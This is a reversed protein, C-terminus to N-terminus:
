SLEAAIPAACARRAVWWVAIAGLAALGALVLAIEAPDAALDLTVYSVAIRSMEPGLVLRELVIAVLAAPALVTFAAGALLSRVAGAGAGCARLVAITARREYATLALAQALTYLCVLGDLAAVARLVDGLATVLTDGQGTITETRTVGAQQGGLQAAVRAASAGPKLRVAIQESASPEVALLAGAPVYAVRGDHDLSSVVGAVRLRLEAGAPMMLALTSGVSLGLVQALGEGVEAEREGRLRTGVSLPPDEFEDQRSTPYAIVNVTEDLAFSDFATLEYRPAAAAVGAIRGARRAASAPLSATLQYRRGLAKPDNELTALESALALMLLVFAASVGLTALTAGLRMRRASVLRAGLGALGGRRARQSFRRGGRLEAGKLLAVPSRGAAQWAPWAAALAPLLAAVTLCALLPLALAAGPARENLLALLRDDPSSAVLTGAAVGLAGAPLAVLLAELASALTVHTRSSGIARRVGIAGLRRAVEARASAALMVGATLLAIVSLAGLLALVIGAAQDLLVRVGSRTIFRLNRLGYSQARAQVLVADLEAPDRLWIKVVNVEGEARLAALPIYARPAALPYAVDSPEQALGVVRQPAQGGLEVTDGVRLGWAAALGQELVVGTAGHGLGHGAVIAYGTRGPGLAEVVGDDSHHEAGAIRVSTVEYGLTVAALDPLSRVRREITSAPEAEFRAIVDPLGAARASRSFGTGLGYGVTTATALMAAAMAIGFGALLARGRRARIAVLAEHLAASV